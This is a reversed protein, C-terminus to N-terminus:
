RIGKAFLYSDLLKNKALTQYIFAQFEAEKRISEGFSTKSFVEWESRTREGAIVIAENIREMIPKIITVAEPMDKSVAAANMKTSAIGYLRLLVQYAIDYSLPKAIAQVMGQTLINGTDGGLREVLVALSMLRYVPVRSANILNIQASTLPTNSRIASLIATLDDEVQDKLGKRAATLDTEVCAANVFNPTVYNKQVYKGEIIADMINGTSQGPFCGPDGVIPHPADATASNPNEYIDGFYARFVKEFPFDFEMDNFSQTMLPTLFSVKGQKGLCAKRTDPDAITYCDYHGAYNTIFNKYSNAFDNIDDALGKFWSSSGGSSVSYGVAQALKQGGWAGIAKTAQCSNVNLNNIQNMLSDLSSLIDACSECLTKLAIQFAFAPAASLIQQFKQVLYEFNLYSFGGMVIDIGGCGVKLSPSTLSVLPQEYQDFRVAASGGMLYGREQGEYAKLNVGKLQDMTRDLFNSMDASTPISLAVTLLLAACIVFSRKLYRM